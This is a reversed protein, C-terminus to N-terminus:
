PNVLPKLIEEKEPTKKNVKFFYEVPHYRTEYPLNNGSCFGRKVKEVWEEATKTWYHDLRMISHDYTDTISYRRIAEGRTNIFGDVNNPHHPNTGFKVNKLGGRVFCKTYCNEPCNSKVWTDLPMPETFRVSLPRDDYHTLGNDTMVRWNVMLVNGKDYAQMMTSIKKRGNWRLYEDMDLFGIWAYEDGHKKYCDEYVICQANKANPVDTIEVLGSKIYPQLVNKMPEEDGWRNDYIFIKSVGIKKYHEVWETCYRNELRGIACIAVRKEGRMQPTAEWLEKYQNLWRSQAKINNNKWSGSGYHVLFHRIDIHLGKLRPRHTLIDELLSAGTDYWNTRDNPDAKLAWCRNPDFYSVNEKRFMPVNFWCLMPLVRGVGFKNNPQAKQIYAVVSYEPRFFEEISKKLLVDSEMLVFGDPFLEWLKNVTLIHKVSGFENGTSCGILRNRNPFTELIKNFDIIKGATNDMVKVGPMSIKFPRADSNDFVTVDYHLGGHKRLSLIAAETLEPTNYNIVVVQRKPEKM